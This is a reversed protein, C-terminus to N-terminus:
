PLQLAIIAAACAATIASNGAFLDGIQTTYVAHGAALAVAKLPKNGPQQNFQVMGTPVQTGPAVVGVSAACNCM